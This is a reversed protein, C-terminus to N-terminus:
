ALQPKLVLAYPDFIIWTSCKLHIWILLNKALLSALLYFACPFVFFSVCPFFAFPFLPRIFHCPHLPPSSFLLCIAFLTIRPILTQPPYKTHRSKHTYTGPLPALFPKNVPCWIKVQSSDGRSRRWFDKKSGRSRANTKRSSSLTICCLLTLIERLKQSGLYWDLLLSRVLGVCMCLCVFFECGARYLPQWDRWSLKCSHSRFSIM